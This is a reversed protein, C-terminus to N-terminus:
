VPHLEQSMLTNWLRFTKNQPNKEQFQFVLGMPEKHYIRMHYENFRLTKRGIGTVWTKVLPHWLCTLVFKNHPYPLVKLTIRKERPLERLKVNVSTWFLKEPKKNRM